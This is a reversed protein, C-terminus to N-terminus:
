VAMGGVQVLNRKIFFKTVVPVNDNTFAEAEFYTILLLM